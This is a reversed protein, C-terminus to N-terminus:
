ICDHCYQQGPKRIIRLKGQPGWGFHVEDSFRIRDWDEPDPYKELMTCAFTIQNKATKESVLGKQCAVCKHYDLTEMVRQITRGSTEVGAELGLQKWTLARVEFGKTEIISKMEKTQSPTIVSKCGRTESLSPNHHRRRSSQSKIIEYGSSCSVGYDKFIDEKQFDFGHKKALEVAGQVKAKMPTPYHQGYRKQKQAPEPTNPCTM